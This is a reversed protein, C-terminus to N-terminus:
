QMGRKGGDNRRNLTPRSRQAAVRELGGFYDEELIVDRDDQVALLAAETWIATLDAPSWSDTLAAIEGHPLRGETALDSASVALIEKRAQEDPLSFEIEWDFRGPRRLAVDIDQPRNTTAIVIVNRNKDFGDMCTLLQGVVRRSSENSDSGRQQAVSDIEDFFVIARDQKKADDFIARILEESDGVWKSIIEPGSISYFQAKAQNAIIRALMTKGTGSVGTFLVGKIPRANIKTLAVHHKLPIEILEQAREIIAQSGGFNAFTPTASPDSKFPSIDIPRDLSIEIQRVPHDALVRIVGRLDSGEVTFGVKIDVDAPKPLTLFRDGISIVLESELVVRVTGIWTMQPWLESPAFEVDDFSPGVLVVDGPEFEDEDELYTYSISGNLYEIYM